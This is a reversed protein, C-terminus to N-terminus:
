KSINNLHTKLVNDILQAYEKKLSPFKKVLRKLEKEFRRTPIITIANYNM